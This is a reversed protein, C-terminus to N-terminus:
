WSSAAVVAPNPVIIGEVPMQAPFAIEYVFGGLWVAPSADTSDMEFRIDKLDQLTWAGGGPRTDMQSRLFTLTTGWGPNGTFHNTTNGNLLTRLTADNTGTSAERVAGLWAVSIPDIQRLPDAIPWRGNGAIATSVSMRIAKTIELDNIRSRSDTENDGSFNTAGTFTNDTYQWQSTTISQHEAAAAQDATIGEIPIAGLPYDGSTASQAYNDMRTTSSANGHNYSGTSGTLTGSAIAPSRQTQSVGDVAWDVVWPNAAANVRFDITHWLGDASAGITSDFSSGGIWAISWKQTDCNVGISVFNGGSIADLVSVLNYTDGSFKASPISVFKVRVSQVLLTGPAGLQIQKGSQTGCVCEICLAGGISDFDSSIVSPATGSIASVLGGGTASIAALSPWEFGTFRSLTPPM